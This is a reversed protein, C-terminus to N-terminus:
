SQSSRSLMSCSSPQWFPVWLLVWLCLEMRQLPMYSSSSSSSSGERSKGRGEVMLSDLVDVFELLAKRFARTRNATAFRVYDFPPVHGSLQWMECRGLVEGYWWALECKEIEQRLDPYILYLVNVAAAKNYDGSEFAHFIARVGVNRFRSVWAPSSTKAGQVSGSACM